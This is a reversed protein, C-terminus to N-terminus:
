EIKANKYKKKLQLMNKPVIELNIREQELKM